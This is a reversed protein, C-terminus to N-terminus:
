GKFLAESNNHQSAVFELASAIRNIDILLTMGLEIASKLATEKLEDMQEREQKTPGRNGNMTAEIKKVQDFCGYIALVHGKIDAETTM